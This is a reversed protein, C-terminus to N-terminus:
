GHTRTRFAFISILLFVWAAIQLSAFVIALVFRRRTKEVLSPPTKWYRIAIFLAMPATLITFYIGFLSIVPWVVLGLAISDYRFRQNELSKIKGKTKGAELCNPCFHEGHLECDCLSCLFRGCSQCPVVAKKGSHFFCNSEGELMIAEAERGTQMPRFLAPFLEIHVPKQCASCPVLEAQNFVGEPLTAKCAPCQILPATTV